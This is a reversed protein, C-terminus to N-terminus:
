EGYPSRGLEEDDFGHEYANAKVNARRLDEAALQRSEAENNMRGAILRAESETLPGTVYRGVNGHMDVHYVRWKDAADYFSERSLKAAYKM